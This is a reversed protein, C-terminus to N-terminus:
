MSRSMPSVRPATSRSSIFGNQRSHRKSKGALWSLFWVIDSCILSTARVEIGICRLTAQTEVVPDAGGPGHQERMGLVARRFAAGFEALRPDLVLEIPLVLIM